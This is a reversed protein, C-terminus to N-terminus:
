DKAGLEAFGMKKKKYGDPAAKVADAMKRLRDIVDEYPQDLCYVAAVLERLHAISMEDTDKIWRTLNTDTIGYDTAQQLYSRRADPSPMGVMVRRDFRSPRNMIRAGLRDPYNTSAVNLINNISHEGDLMSLVQAEGNYQIIEDIDEFVAILNRNPEIRRIAKLCIAALEVNGVILVVGGNNILEQILLKIVVTKGGGPAGWVIIGRKFLLKHKRYKEESAWFKKAEDLISQTAMDPLIYINDTAITLKEVGWMSPTAFTGYVGAPLAQMTSGIPMYRNNGGLAWQTHNDGKKEESPVPATTPPSSKAGPTDEFEDNANQLIENLVAEETETDAM